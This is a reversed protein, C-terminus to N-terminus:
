KMKEELEKVTGLSMIKINVDLRYHKTFALPVDKDRFPLNSHLYDAFKNLDVTVCQNLISQQGRYEIHAPCHSSEGDEGFTEDCEECDKIDCKECPNEPIEGIFIKM